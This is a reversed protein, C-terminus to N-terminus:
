VLVLLAQLTSAMMPHQLTRQAMSNPLATTSVAFEPCSSGELLRMLSPIRDVIVLDTKAGIVFSFLHHCINLSWLQGPHRAPLTEKTTLPSPSMSFRRRFGVHIEVEVVSEMNENRTEVIQARSM